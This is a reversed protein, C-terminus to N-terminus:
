QTALEDRTSESCTNRVRATLPSRPYREVFATAATRAAIREGAECLAYVRVAAREEVLVGQRFAKDQEALLRLASAGEHERLHRQVLALARGEEGLSPPKTAPLGRPKHVPASPASEVANAEASEVDNSSITTPQPRVQAKTASPITTPAVTAAASRTRLQPTLALVSGGLAMGGILAIVFQTGLTLKTTVAIGAEASGSLATTATGAAIGASLAMTLGRDVARRDMETPSLGKRVTSLLLQAEDSMQRSM